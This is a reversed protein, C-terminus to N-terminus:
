AEVIEPRWGNAGKGIIGAEEAPRLFTTEVAERIMPRGQPTLPRVIRLPRPAIAALIEDIDAAQLLGWAHSQFGLLEEDYYRSSAIDRYSLPMGEITLAEISEELAAAHLAFSAGIGVGLASIPRADDRTTLYDVARLVDFVRLGLTSTKLKMADCGLKFETGKPYNGGVNSSQLAGRGRVDLIYVRQRQELLEIIRSKEGPIANTGDGLLLMTTGRATSEDRPHVFVATSTIDPESFYFIKETRYGDVPEDVIIRPYIRRQRPEGFWVAEGTPVSEGIGLAEALKGRLEVPDMKRPNAPIRRELEDRLLDTVMRCEPFASLVQGTATANLKESPVTEPDETKFAEEDGRLAKRFFNVASERLYSSYQHTTPAVTYDLKGKGEEGYLEFMRRAKEIAALAGEIPFFDYAALGVRVPKPAMATLYDDHDPGDIFCAHLNQESDQAQGCKMYSEYDMVFTCPMAAAIREECMMLFTTQLGGGSNGTVGIRNPDVEPRSALYDFGRIDDWMFQRMISMGALEYGMGAYSHERTGWKVRQLGTNRDIFQFREGQGPPDVALVVFGDRALDLCVKQYITHSKAQEAHGCVFQVAPGPEAGLRSKPVYLNATVPFNPVSHYIVKEVVHDDAELTGTVQADLPTKEEPLGGIAALFNERMRARYREFDERTRVDQRERERTRFARESRRRLYDILQYEVHYYGDVSRRFTIM